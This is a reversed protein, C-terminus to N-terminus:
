AFAKNTRVDANLLSQRASTAMQADRLKQFTFDKVAELRDRERLYKEVRIIATAERAKETGEAALYERSKQIRYESEADAFSKCAEEYAEERDAIANLAKELQQERDMDDGRSETM